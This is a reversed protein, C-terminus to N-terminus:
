RGVYYALVIFTFIMGGCLGAVAGITGFLATGILSLLLTTSFFGLLCLSM